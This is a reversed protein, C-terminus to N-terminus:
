NKTDIDVDVALPAPVKDGQRMRQLRELQNLARYFQRELSGEYRLLKEVELSDPINGQLIKVELKLKNIRKQKELNQIEGTYRKVMEDCLEIHAQWIKKEDWGCQKTLFERLQVPSMSQGDIGVGAEDLLESVEEKGQLWGWNANWNMIEDLPQNNKVMEMLVKKDRQWLPIDQKKEQIMRDLEEDPRQTEEEDIELLENLEDKSYFDDVATDLQGRILGVEYRYLRRHRWLCGALKDVLLEEVIGVPKLEAILKSVLSDFERSDEAGDGTTIVVEKALLGHKLANFKVIAKGEPTKPGGRPKGRDQTVRLSKKM